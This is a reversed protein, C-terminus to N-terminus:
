GLLSWMFNPKSQCLAKLSSRQFHNVSVILECLTGLPEPSSFYFVCLFFSMFYHFCAFESFKHGGGLSKKFFYPVDSFTFNIPTVRVLFM